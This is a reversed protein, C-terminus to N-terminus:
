ADLFSQLWYRSIDSQPSSTQCSLFLELQWLVVNSLTPDSDYRLPIGSAAMQAQEPRQVM